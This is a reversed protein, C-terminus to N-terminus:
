WDLYISDLFVGQQVREKAAKESNRATLASGSNDWASAIEATRAFGIALVHELNARHRRRFSRIASSDAFPVNSSNFLGPHLKLLREISDSQVSGRCHFYALTGLM